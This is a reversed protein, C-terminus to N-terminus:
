LYIGPMTSTSFPVSISKKTFDLCFIFINYMTKSVGSRVVIFLSPISLISLILSFIILKMMKNHEVLFLYLFVLSGRHSFLLTDVSERM